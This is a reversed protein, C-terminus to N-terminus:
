SVFEGEVEFDQGNSLNFGEHVLKLGLGLGLCDEGERVSRSFEANQNRLLSSWEEVIEKNKVASLSSMKCEPCIVEGISEADAYTEEHVYVCVRCTFTAIVLHM